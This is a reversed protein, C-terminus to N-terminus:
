RLAQGIQGSLDGAGLDLNFRRSATRAPREPRASVGDTLRKSARVGALADDDEGVEAAGDQRDAVQELALGAAVDPQHVSREDLARYRGSHHRRRPLRELIDRLRSLFCTTGTLESVVTASGAPTARWARGAAVNTFVASRNRERSVTPESLLTTSALLMRATSASPAVPPVTRRKLASPSSADSASSASAPQTQPSTSYGSTPLKAARQSTWVESGDVCRVWARLRLASSTWEWDSWSRCRWRMRPLRGAFTSWSELRALRVRPRTSSGCFELM